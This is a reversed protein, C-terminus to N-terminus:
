LRPGAGFCEHEAAALNAYHSLRSCRPSASRKEGGKAERRPVMEQDGFGDDIIEHIV